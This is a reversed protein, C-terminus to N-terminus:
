DEKLAEVLSALRITADPRGQALASRAMLEAREPAGLIGAIERSLQAVDLGNEALVVAAGSEALGKANATQHDGTAAAFPILIAPRGIISIDAAATPLTAAAMATLAAGLAGVYLMARLTM